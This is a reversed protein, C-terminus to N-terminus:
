RTLRDVLRHLQQKISHEWLLNESQMRIGAILAEDIEYLCIVKAQVLSELLVVCENKQEETLHIASTIYFLTIGSAQLYYRVMYRLIDIILYLRRKEILQVFLSEIWQPMGYDEYLISRVRKQLQDDFYTMGMLQVLGKHEHLYQALSNLRECLERTCQNGFINLMARAYRRALVLKHEQKM